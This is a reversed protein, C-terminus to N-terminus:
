AVYRSVKPEINCIITGHWGSLKNKSVTLYRATDIESDEVDGAEHKGIGIILDCEGSKGIKSGEMDFPSLRTRGKAEASAQSVVLVACQHRKALERFRRYLERLREHSANFSGKVHVKDGQDIVVVDPKVHDIYADMMSLDWEQTDMMSILPDIVAFKDLAKRPNIAVEERTMGSWSTMARLMTRRTEEENGLYLVKAGQSCFGDPGAALSVVFASKGTEPTAFVVGFEGAGIGYVHRSLTPINFRWRNDDSTLALLEHIDKTTEEGFETPTFGDKVRDILTTLREMATENGESIEIGINAIKKGMDMRWMSKVLDNLIDPNMEPVNQIENIIEVVCDVEARTAIPNNDKWLGFVEQLTMDTAYKEQAAVIVDYLDRYEDEFLSGKLSPKMKLYIDNNCIAKLIENFMIKIVGTLTNLVVM